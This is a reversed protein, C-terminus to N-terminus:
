SDLPTAIESLLERLPKENGQMAAASADINRQPDVLQWDLRYGAEAALQAFFARQARGNGERFPHLANANAFHHALRDVFRELNLGRLHREDALTGFIEAGYSEIHEPMCFLDAKALSVTRLEGAWDYLDRFLFRHFARLHALDFDGPIPEAALCLGNWNTLDAEVRALGAADRIGLNNRLVDTGPYVYPDSV